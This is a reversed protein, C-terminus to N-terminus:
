EGEMEEESFLLGGLSLLEVPCFLIHYSLAVARINLSTMLCLNSYVLDMKHQKDTCKHPAM